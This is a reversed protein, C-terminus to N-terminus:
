SIWPDVSCQTQEERQTRDASWNRRTVNKRSECLVSKSLAVGAKPYYSVCRTGVVKDREAVVHALHRENAGGYGSEVRSVARLLWRFWSYWFVKVNEGKWNSKALSFDQRTAPPLSSFSNPINIQRVGEQSDEEPRDKDVSPWQEEWPVWEEHSEDKLNLHGKGKGMGRHKTTTVAKSGTAPLELIKLEEQHIFTNGEGM